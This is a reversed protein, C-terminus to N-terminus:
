ITNTKHLLVLSMHSRVSTMDDRPNCMSYCNCLFFDLQQENFSPIHLSTYSPLYDSGTAYCVRRDMPLVTWM